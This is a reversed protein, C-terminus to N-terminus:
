QEGGAPAPQGGGAAAPQGGQAGKAAAQQKEQQAQAEKKQEAQRDAVQSNAELQKLTYDIVTGLHKDQAEAQALESNIMTAIRDAEEGHAQSMTLAAQARLAMIKGDNLRRTEMLQMLETRTDAEIKAMDVQAKMQEIQVKPNPPPPVANPGKPDPFVQDIGGVKLATLVRKEVEYKNYGVTSMSLQRLTMAQQVRDEESAMHPDAVPVVSKDTEYYDSALCVGGAYEWKGNKPPHLDNLRYILRFEEKMARWTRKYIGNFIKEGQKLATRSTEAPTNQGPTEGVQPDTAMGIRQGWEILLTLLQFLVGSPEKVILPTIGKMQEPTADTRKWEQPKFSYDGGMLRVGRPLFGGGLTSMVGADILMNIMTNIAENTAGLLLGFGMDYFGGDPSPIFPIKIFHQDAKISQIKDKGNKKVWYVSEKRFRPKMRFLQGTDRRFTIIYPESYGDGDVDIWCHQEGIPFPTDEGDAVMEMGSAKDQADRIPGDGEPRATPTNLEAEETDLFLGAVQRTVIDNKWMNFTHTIRPADALTKTFYDVVLDQPFVLESRPTKEFTDYYVKKFACGLIPQVILSKDANEEWATDQETLQFSMHESVRKARAHKEGKPDEGIVRCHVFNDSPILSPYAKAHYQLAAMTLLPFKVNAAGPWPFTKEEAIQMALKLAEANNDEWQDRSAADDKYQDMAWMGIARQDEPSFLEACNHENDLIQDLTVETELDLM